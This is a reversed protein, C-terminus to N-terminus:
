PASLPDMGETYVVVNYHRSGGGRGERRAEVYGASILTALAERKGDTKGKVCEEVERKYAGPNGLIFAAIRQMLFTPVFRRAGEVIPIDDPGNLTAITVGPTTSDIVLRATEQTRDGARAPSSYPRVGGPRDKAVRISIEGKLGRGLESTVEFLYSCGSIGALKAQSGIAFRGRTEANKTVHDIQIVAAGTKRAIPDPVARRWAAIDDTSDSSGRASQHGVSDTVGDVVALTYRKTLLQTYGAEAITAARDPRRYDLHDRIADPDVGLEVLRGTILREDTEYDLYLVDKGDILCRAAMIQAAFSKGSEPEGHFDHVRGPYLLARGDVREMLTPLEPETEGALVATLDIRDWGNVDGTVGPVAQLREIRALTDGVDDAGNEAQQLARTLEEVVRRRRGKDAVHVAWDLAHQQTAPTHDVDTCGLVWLPDVPRRNARLAAIVSHIDARGTTTWQQSATQWVEAVRPRDFNAPEGLATILREAADADPALLLAGLVGRELQEDATDTTSSGGDM